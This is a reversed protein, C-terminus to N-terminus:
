SASPSPCASGGPAMLEEFGAVMRGLTADCALADRAAASAAPIREGRRVRAHLLALAALTAERDRPDAVLGLGFRQVLRTLSGPPALALVPREAGAADFLKGPVPQGGLPGDAGLVLAVHAARLVRGLEARPAPPEVRVWGALGARRVTAAVAPEAGVLRVRVQAPVRADRRSWVRLADILRELMGSRNLLLTGAHVIEFRQAPPEVHRWAAFEEPAFGTLALESRAALGPMRARYHEAVAESAFFVRDARHLVGAELRREFAQRRAPLAVRSHDCTWGDRFDAVWPVGCAQAALGPLHASYPPCSTYVLDVCRTAALAAAVPAALLSWGVHLDPVLWRALRGPTGPACGGRGRRARRALRGWDPNLLRILRTGAAVQALGAPDQVWAAHDVSLVVPQWGAAALARVVKVTRSVGGGGVPPFYYAVVLARRSGRM